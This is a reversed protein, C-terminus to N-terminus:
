FESDDDFSDNFDDDDVLSEDELEDEEFYDKDSVSEGEDETPITEEIFLGRNRKKPASSGEIRSVYFMENIGTPEDGNREEDPEHELSIIEDEEAFGEVPELSGFEELEDISDISDVSEIDDDMSEFELEETLESSEDDLSDDFDLESSDEEECMACAELEFVKESVQEKFYEMISKEM